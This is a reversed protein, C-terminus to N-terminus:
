ADRLAIAKRTPGGLPLVALASRSVWRHATWGTRRVRGDDARARFVHLRLLRHTFAHEVTGVPEAESIALGLGERLARALV